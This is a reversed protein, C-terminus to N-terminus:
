LSLWVDRILCLKINIKLYSIDAFTGEEHTRDHGLPKNGQHRKGHYINVQINYVNSAM